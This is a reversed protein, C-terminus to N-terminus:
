VYRERLAASAYDLLSVVIAIALVAVGADRYRLLNIQQQLLFGIGGGGVFGIITSMRVNIDWRYMTFAIYSPIIQPIVAYVIMQLRNAGTSQLAEIPGNDITEIQESYLKGLSAISHLTLALVGAFPGIGVWIVFVLGMILPEISRLANLLTRTISYLVGGIGFNARTGQLGGIVGAVVAGILMAEAVYTYIDFGALSLFVQRQPVVGEIIARSINMLWFAVVFGIAGGIWSLVNLLVAQTRTPHAGTRSLRMYLQPLLPATLAAVTVPILLGLWAASLSIAAIIGLLVAGGLAGLVAGLVHSAQGSIQRLSSQTLTGGISALAVAGVIGCLPIFVLEIIEGLSGIFRTLNAFIGQAPIREIALAAGGLLGLVVVVAASVGVTLIIARMPSRTEPKNKGRLRASTVVAGVFVLTGAASAGLGDNWLRLGISGLAGLITTGIAYGIPLLTFAVLLNGLPIRVPRMLNHAAFFSLIASPLISITTAILALFITEVMREAVLGTTESFRPLGEPFRGQAEITHTEGSSGRIRPIEIQVQFAGDAGTVFNDEEVGIVQRVRREGDTAIWNIRALSNPFFKYGRVTVTEGSSGCAPEIEIYPNDVSPQAAPAVFDDTCTVLFPTTTNQITYDQEFVNPSLLENLASAVNEQRQPQQTVSFDIDTVTWGYSFVILAAAALLVIM